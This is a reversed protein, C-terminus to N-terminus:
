IILRFLIQLAAEPLAMPDELYMLTKEEETLNLGFGNLCNCVALGIAYYYVLQLCKVCNLVTLAKFVTVARGSLQLHDLSNCVALVIAFLHM